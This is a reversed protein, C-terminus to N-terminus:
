LGARIILEAAANAIVTAYTLDDVMAQLEAVGSAGSSILEHVRLWEGTYGNDSYPGLVRTSNETRITAELSAARVFSPPFQLHLQSYNGWVDLSWDAAWCESVYGVLRVLADKSGYVVHYGYPEFSEAAYVGGISPVFRRILPLNHIALELITKRMARAKGEATPTETAPIRAPRSLINSSWDEFCDNFPLVISSTVVQTTDGLLCWAEHAKLWGPDFTHMAGVVVPVGTELSVKMVENAEDSSQAMPKECLVALKRATCAAITQEAHFQLPSCVLVVDVAPDSLVEDVSTSHAAGVRSAISSAVSSSVDMVHAVHFMDALLALTPLHITQTM